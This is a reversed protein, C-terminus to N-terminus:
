KEKEKFVRSIREESFEDDEAQRQNDGSEAKELQEKAVCTLVEIALNEVGDNNVIVDAYNSSPLVIENYMPQVTSFYQNIINEFSRAREEHDRIIRRLFRREDSASIFVRLDSLDRLDKDVLAMIGEAIILDKPAITETKKARTLITFDYTPKEITKGNKLDAIQKRMLPWDFAKPHDYNVKMREAMSLTSQDKYYDDLTIYTIKDEGIAKIISETVYTKGSSSGGGVLILRPM